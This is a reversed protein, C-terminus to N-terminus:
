ILNLILLSLLSGERNRCVNPRLYPGPANFEGLRGWSVQDDSYFITDGAGSLSKAGRLDWGPSPDAKHALRLPM